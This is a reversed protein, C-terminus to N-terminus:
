KTRRLSGKKELAGARSELTSWGTATDLGIFIGSRGIWGRLTWDM